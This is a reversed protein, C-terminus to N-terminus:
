TRKLSCDDALLAPGGTTMGSGFVSLPLLNGSKAATYTVSIQYWQASDALTVRPSRVPDADRVWGTTYEQVQVYADIRGTVRVWCSATYRAGAETTVRVPRSTVGAVNPEAATRVIRVARQGSHVTTVATVTTAPGFVDWSVPDAEFGPDALGEAAGPGSASSPASSRPSSPPGGTPPVQGTGGSPTGPQPQVSPPPPTVRDAIV